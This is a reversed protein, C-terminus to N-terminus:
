RGAELAILEFSSQANDWRRLERRLALKQAV